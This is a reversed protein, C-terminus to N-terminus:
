TAERIVDEPLDPYLRRMCDACLGHSFRASAQESMYKELSVWQDPAGPEGTAVRIRRCSSCTPLMGELWRVRKLTGELAGILKEKEAEAQKRREIEEQALNLEVRIAAVERLIALIPRNEIPLGRRRTQWNLYAYLCPCAFVAVVARCAFTGGMIRVYNPTGLFAGTAFLLVDLWLVGLLTLLARLWLPMHLRQRGLFEWSMALFLLDAVTTVVSALNIRLSPVPLAAPVAQGALRMQFLLVAAVLPTLASVGAVTLIATRTAAPGDFVYVVFVGLLLSTYFVTSGFMFDLGGIGVTVGADTVWSMLATIGGLLAYFPALGARHRLAHVSLVLLYVAVAEALLILPQAVM